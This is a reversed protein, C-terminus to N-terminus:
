NSDKRQRLRSFLQSYPAFAQQGEAWVDGHEASPQDIESMAIVAADAAPQPASLDPSRGQSKAWETWAQLAAYHDEVAEESAPEPPPAMTAVSAEAAPTEPEWGVEILGDEVRIPPKPTGLVPLEREREARPEAAARVPYTPPVPEATRATPRAFARALDLLRKPNGRADRHLRDLADDTLELEPKARDLLMRAEDPDIPRLAVRAVIRTALASLPRTALRRALPTQGVLILGAFGDARGLQNALIRLEELVADAVSHAEDVVLVWRTGDDAVEALFDALEPRSPEPGSPGTLDLAYGILRYLDQPANAPSLDVGIWRLSPRMEAQLRRWVWTKGVGPEGSLLVPGAQSDIASRLKGIAASRSALVFADSLPPGGRENRDTPTAWAREM